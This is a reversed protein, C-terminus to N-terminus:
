AHHFSLFITLTSGAPLELEGLALPNVPHCEGGYSPSSRSVTKEGDGLFAGRKEDGDGLKRKKAQLFSLFEGLRLEKRKLRLQVCDSATGLSKCRKRSPLMGTKFKVGFQPLLSKGFGDYHLFEVSQFFLAKQAIGTEGVREDHRPLM